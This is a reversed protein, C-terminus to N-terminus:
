LSHPSTLFPILWLMKGKKYEIDFEYSQVKIVWKQKRDNLEKQTLFHTLSNHDIKVIFKGGVLYQQFKSLAHMIALMEKDYISYLRDHPQLKRRKLAIPHGYQM